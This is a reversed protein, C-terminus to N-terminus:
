SMRCDISILNTDLQSFYNVFIGWFILLSNRDKLEVNDGDMDYSENKKAISYMTMKKTGSPSEQLNTKISSSNTKDLTEKNGESESNSMQNTDDNQKSNQEPHHKKSAKRTGDVKEDALEDTANADPM